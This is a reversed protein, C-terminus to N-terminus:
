GATGDLAADLGGRGTVGLKPYTGSTPQVRDHLLASGGGAAVADAVARGLGSAAGTVLVSGLPRTSTPADAAAPDSRDVTTSM